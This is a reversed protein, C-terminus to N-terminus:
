VAISRIWRRLSLECGEGMCVGNAMFRFKAKGGCGCRCKLYHGRRANQLEVYLRHRTISGHQGWGETGGEMATKLAAPSLDNLNM